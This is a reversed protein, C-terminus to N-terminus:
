LNGSMYFGQILHFAIYNKVITLVFTITFTRLFNLGAFIDIAFVRNIFTDGLFKIDVHHRLLDLKATDASTDLFKLADAYSIRFCINVLPLAREFNRTAVQTNKFPEKQISYIQTQNSPQRSLKTCKQILKMRLWHDEDNEFLSHATPILSFDFDFFYM